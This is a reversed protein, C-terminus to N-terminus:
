EYRLLKLLGSLFNCVPMDCNSNWPAPFLATKIGIRAVAAINDESDDVFVDIRSFRALVDDKGGDYKPCFTDRRFSPVFNFSRIWPGFHRLLWEASLYACKLPVASVAVHSFNEGHEKFWRLVDPDPQLDKFQAIRFRDLSAKYDDIEIGFLRHPPNENIHEYAFDTISRERCFADFWEATLHNLVDDIDWAIVPFGCGLINEIDGM